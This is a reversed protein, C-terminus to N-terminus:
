KLGTCNHIIGYSPLKIMQDHDSTPHHVLQSLYEVGCINEILCGAGVDDYLIRGIYQYIYKESADADWHQEISFVFGCMCICISNNDIKRM